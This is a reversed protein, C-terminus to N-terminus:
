PWNTDPNLSWPLKNEGEFVAKKSIEEFLLKFYSKFINDWKSLVADFGVAKRHAEEIEDYKRLLYFM